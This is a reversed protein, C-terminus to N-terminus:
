KAEALLAFLKRTILDDEFNLGILCWNFYSHNGLVDLYMICLLSELYIIWPSLEVGNLLVFHRLYCFYFPFCLVLCWLTSSVHEMHVLIKKLHYCCMVQWVKNYKNWFDFLSDSSATLLLQSIKPCSVRSAHANENQSIHADVLPVCLHHMVQPLFGRRIGFNTNIDLRGGGELPIAQRYRCGGIRSM